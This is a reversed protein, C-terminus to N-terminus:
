FYYNHKRYLIFYIKIKKNQFSVITNNKLYKLEIVGEGLKELFVYM